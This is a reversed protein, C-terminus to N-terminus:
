TEQRLLKRSLLPLWSTELVISVIVTTLTAGLIYEGWVMLKPINYTVALSLPLASLASPVVGRPGELSMFLYERVNWKRTALVPILAIPRALLIVGLAVIISYSLIPLLTGLNASAGLLIFIFVVSFLSLVENFHVEKDITSRLKLSVEPDEKFLVHHNGLIIGIITAVLYGSAYSIEGLYFGLFALALSFLLVEENGELGILRIAWYGALGVIVGIIISVSVEYIFYVIGALEIGTFSAIREVFAASPAQPVLLALTLSTLVIGLPDNFISETILVTKIDERVKYEHFLPILTAPDTASIIAGFLLGVIFPVNFIWSFIVGACFATIILSITDLIAITEFHKRLIYWKLNHGETFLIIVLGFVRIYDFIKRALPIDLIGLLPGVLLGLVIFLPVFSVKSKRSIYLSMSGLFLVILLTFVLEDINHLMVTSLHETANVM